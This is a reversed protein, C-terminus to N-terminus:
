RLKWITVRQDRSLAAFWQGNDSFDVSAIDDKQELLTVIDGKQLDWIRITNDVSGSALFRKDPHFALTTVDKKHGELVRIEEGTVTNRVKIRRVDRRRKRVLDIHIDVTSLAVVSGDLSLTMCILKDASEQIAKKERGVNADWWRISLDNSASILHRGNPTFALSNITDDHGELRALKTGSRLDLINIKQDDGGSALITSDPSFSLATVKRLHCKVKYKKEKNGINWLHVFGRSDGAALLTNDSSMALSTIRGRRIEYEEAIGKDYLGWVEVSYGGAVMLYRGNRSFTITEARGSEHSFIDYLEFAITTVGKLASRDSVVGLKALVDSAVKKVAMQKAILPSDEIPAPNLSSGLPDSTVNAIEEATATDVATLSLSATGEWSAAFKQLSNVSLAGRMLIKAGYDTAIKAMATANGDQIAQWLLKDAKVKKMIEPNIIRGGGEGVGQKLLNEAYELFDGAGGVDKLVVMIRTKKEIVELLSSARSPLAPAFAWILILCLSAFIVKRM